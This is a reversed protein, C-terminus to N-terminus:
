LGELVENAARRGSRVAGDMFGNWYEATEAGAWHVAGFPTILEHGFDSLTGPAAVSTPGGRTWEESTWDQEFYAKPRHAREGVVRSFCQVVARKRADPSARSWRRWERGGLFGMLVGPKGEPPTNDFMARIPTGDRLVGMGSLGDRRWFPEEYVAECKMLTGFPLRRLLADRPAPLLPSWAIQAALQPPLAVIVRAAHWAGYDSHVTVSGTTDTADQDIRRVPSGLVVQQELQEAIKMSILQSGGVFRSEQAGGEGAIGRELRGPNGEDGFMAIYWLTFLLSADTAEGGYASNLFVNVWDLAGAGPTSRRLWTELTISDWERARPAAWPAKVPVKRSLRNLRLQALALGALAPYDPPIEGRYRKADDGKVLVQDGAVSAPYTEVGVEAALQLIHGQTPGVFQGGVEVVQGGGLDHNLTRGGVRDRAELVVVSRGARGLERAATLGALGAGVVAVDVRRPRRAPTAPNAQASMM